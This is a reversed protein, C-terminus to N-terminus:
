SLLVSLLGAELFILVGTLSYLAASRVIQKTEPPPRGEEAPVKAGLLMRVQRWTQRASGTTSIDLAGGVLMLGVSELLLVFGFAAIYNSVPDLKLVLLGVAALVAAVGNFVVFELASMGFLKTV